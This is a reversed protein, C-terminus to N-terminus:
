FYSRIRQMVNRRLPKPANEADLTAACKQIADANPGPLMSEATFSENFYTLAKDVAPGLGNWGVLDPPGADKAVACSILSCQSDTSLTAVASAGTSGNFGIRVLTLEISTLM